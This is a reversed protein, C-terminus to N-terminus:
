SRRCHCCASGPPPWHPPATSTGGCTAPSEHCWGGDVELVLRVDDYLFDVRGAWGDGGLDVQRRPEPLGAATLARLVRGELGSDLPRRGRHRDTLARVVGIGRRGRADLENVTADLDGWHLGRRLAAHLAMEVRAPHETAALDVVTRALTTVPIGQARTCHHPPLLRPTHVLALTTPRDATRRPRSVEVRGIRFGRLAWLAAASSHSVVAEPGADLVATMARQEDTTAMGVLRLVRPTVAEWDPSRLRHWVADRSM